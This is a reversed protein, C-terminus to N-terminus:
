QHHHHSARGSIRIIYSVLLYLVYIYHKKMLQKLRFVFARHPDYLPSSCFLVPNRRGSKNWIHFSDDSRGRRTYDCLVIAYIHSISLFPYFHGNINSFVVCFDIWKKRFRKLFELTKISKEMLSCKKKGEMHLDYLNTKPRKERPRTQFSSRTRSYIMSLFVVVM